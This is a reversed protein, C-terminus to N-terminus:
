THVKTMASVCNFDSIKWPGMAITAQYRHRFSIEPSTGAAYYATISLKHVPLVVQILKWLDVFDFKM